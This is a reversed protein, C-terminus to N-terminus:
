EPKGSSDENEWPPWEIFEGKKWCFQWSRIVNEKVSRGPETSDDKRETEPRLKKAKSGDCGLIIGLARSCIMPEALKRKRDDSTKQADEDESSEENDSEEENEDENESSETDSLAAKGKRKPKPKSKKPQRGKSRTRRTSGSRTNADELEDDVDEAKVRMAPLLEEEDDRDEDDQRHRLAARSAPLTEVVRIWEKLVEAGQEKWEQTYTGRATTTKQGKRGNQRAERKRLVVEIVDTICAHRLEPSWATWNKKARITEQAARKVARLDLELHRQWGAPQPKASERQIAREGVITSPTETTPTEYAPPTQNQDAMELIITLLFVSFSQEQQTM